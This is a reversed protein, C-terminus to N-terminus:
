GDYGDRPWCRQARDLRAAASTGQGLNCRLPRGSLPRDHAVRSPRNNGKANVDSLQRDPRDGPVGTEGKRARAIEAAPWFTVDCGRSDREIKRVSDPGNAQRRARLMAGRIRNVALLHDSEM